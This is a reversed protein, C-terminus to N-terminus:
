VRRGRPHHPTAKRLRWRRLLLDALLYPVLALATALLSTVPSPGLAGNVLRMSAIFPAGIITMVPRLSPRASEAILSSHWIAGLLLTLLAVLLFPHHRLLKM